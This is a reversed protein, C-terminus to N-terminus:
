KKIKHKTVWEEVQRKIAYNKAFQMNTIKKSTLPDTEHKALWTMISEKDYTQGSEVVIVPNKMLESSIPCCLSEPPDQDYKLDNPADPVNAVKPIEDEVFNFLEDLLEVDGYEPVMPVKQGSPALDYELVELDSSCM